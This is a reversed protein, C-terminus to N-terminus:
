FTYSVKVAAGRYPDYSCSFDFNDYLKKDIVKDAAFAYLIGIGAGAILQSAYHRNCNVFSAATFVALGGLPVAARWGFRKGYLAAAYAYWSLHGSPFGGHARNTCSFEERWPRLDIKGVKCGKILHAFWYVFPLGNLFIRSTERVDPNRAGISLCGAAFIPFVIGCKAFQQSFKGMQNINKHCSRNIFCNQLREDIMRGFVIGPFLGVGIKFSDWNFLERHLDITNRFVGVFADKIKSDCNFPAYMPKKVRLDASFSCHAQMMVICAGYILFSRKITIM